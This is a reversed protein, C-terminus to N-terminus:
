ICGFLKKLVFGNWKKLNEMKMMLKAEKIEYVCHEWGFKPAHAGSVQPGMQSVFRVLIM